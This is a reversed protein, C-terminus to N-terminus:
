INNLKLIIREITVRNRFSKIDGVCKNCDMKAEKKNFLPWYVVM